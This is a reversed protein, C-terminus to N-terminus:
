AHGLRAAALAVAGDRTRDVDAIGGVLDDIVFVVHDHDAGAPAPRRAVKPM